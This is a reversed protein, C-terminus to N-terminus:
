ELYHDIVREIARRCAACFPKDGKSFMICDLMSRYLGKSAYGAGEFAGVKGVWKSKALYADDKRAAELSLRESEAKLQEVEQAPAGARMAAAIKENLAERVKQYALDMEDFGQKEWPTPIPTGPSVLDKWKLDAPRLLATINPERPEVGKPYFENYAVSSTYYEDALGAFHHGFEHLFLYRWWQNDTTFTCYLNYIGGGGYRPSNVMIYLADYPVHAAVRRVAANDETLLYRESGLSDFSAGLATNRWVGRSPEDCGSQQSYALVGRVNFDSRRSAYPEISFFAAVFRALDKRFKGEEARTYGEGLIAIDVKGHADGNHVADVVLVGDDLPERVVTFAAPDIVTSFIERRTMDRQRKEIAFRIPKRPYPILASESYARRVGDAAEKTTRYEGFYSDYGKSFLLAGTAADYVMVYYGGNDFEDLFHVRSGAWTGQRVVRDLTFLEDAANGVHVLDVRMTADEFTANFHAIAAAVGTEAGAPKPARTQALGLLLTLALLM